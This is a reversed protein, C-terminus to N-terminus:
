DEKTEKPVPPPSLTTAKEPAVSEGALQVKFGKRKAFAKLGMWFFLSIAGVGSFYLVANVGDIGKPDTWSLGLLLGWVVPQIPLSENAWWWFANIHQKQRTFVKKRLWRNLVAFIAFAFIGPLHARLPELSRVFDEM